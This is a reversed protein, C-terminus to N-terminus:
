RLVGTQSMVRRRMGEGSGTTAIGTDEMAAYATGAGLLPEESGPPEM